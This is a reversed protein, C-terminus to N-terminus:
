ALHCRPLSLLLFYCLPAAHVYVDFVQFALQYDADPQHPM